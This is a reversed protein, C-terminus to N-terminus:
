QGIIDEPVLTGIAYALLIRQFVLNYEAQASDTQAQILVRNANTYDVFNTVGLNFRESELGFANEAAKVQDLSIMYATRSGEFTKVARLVDNRIQLEMNQLVLENNKQLVKQQVTFARSRLGNFIPVQLQVGFQKYVNDSGFQDSFPRPYRPNPITQGPNNPDNITPQVDHEYSYGSGYGGYLVVNPLMNSLSVATGHRAADANRLARLYDARQQKAVVVLTDINPNESGVVTAEWAPKSVDFEELADMLLTQALLAKNNQLQIEALVARLEAGKTLADQNFEDVPSRAGLRHQEKIQELLKSQAAHNERAIKVLEIDLLVRLYQNSVTNMVDQTTRKVMYAQADLAATTQRITNFTSLGNFVNLNANISASANDFTGNVARGEQPSFSNGQRRSANGTANINPAISAWAAQKQAQNFDLNNRQQNLLINNRLAIQIAEEFMLVRKQAESDHFCYALLLVVVVRKMGLRQM